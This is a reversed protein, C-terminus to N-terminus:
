PTVERDYIRVDDILGKWFTGTEMNNGTGIYLGGESGTLKPQTDSAVEFDDVYLIRNTGDWVVGVQHWDGDTILASSILPPQEQRGGISRLETMLCGDSSDALLWNVGDAQSLIVEGPNGGKIWAFVSFSSTHPDLVFPTSVYDNIGDFELAGEIMGGDPQWNPDGIVNADHYHGSSDYAVAGETEDLKWYAAVDVVQNYYEMLVELDARDVIGDGLPTPGIDCLWESTEWSEIMIVLDNIDCIGNGDFDVIPIIPVQYIDGYYIGGLGGPRDSSFYLTSGDPSIHPAADLSQSNVIPGLNVPAGWPESISVRRTVWMDSNGFGGPRIPVNWEGSFFLLLGDSSLSPGAESASSNVISGLNTPQEWPDNKTARRSVWIDDSGYGGSRRSFYLELGDPSIIAAFEWASSNVTPGLNEPEGWPDDRTARTTLWIDYEGYGGSRNYSNFYLELGDPSIYSSVNDLGGTNVPSGLNFPAGWEDNVTERTSVWIDFGGYGGPKNYYNVYMELGDATILCGLEGYPTSIPPGLNTPTGFTFDAKAVQAIMGLVLVLAILITKKM